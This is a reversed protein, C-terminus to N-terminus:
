QSRQESDDKCIPFISLRKRPNLPTLNIANLNISDMDNQIKGVESLDEISEIIKARKPTGSINLTPSSYIRSRQRSISMMLPSQTPTTSELSRTPTLELSRTPTLELKDKDVEELRPVRIRRAKGVVNAVPSHFIKSRRRNTLPEPLPSGVKQTKPTYQVQKARDLAAKNQKAMTLSVKAPPEELLRRREAQEQEYTSKAPLREKPQPTPTVSNNHLHEYIKKKNEKDM